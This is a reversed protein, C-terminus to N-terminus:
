RMKGVAAAGAAGVLDQKRGRSDFLRSSSCRSASRARTHAARGHAHRHRHTETHTHTHLWVAGWAPSAARPWGAGAGRGAGLKEKREPYGGAAARRRRSSGLRMSMRPVRRARANDQLRVVPGAQQQNRILILGRRRCKCRKGRATTVPLCASSSPHSPIFCLSCSHDASSGGGKRVTEEGM